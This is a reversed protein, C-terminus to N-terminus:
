MADEQRVEPECMEDSTQQLYKILDAIHAKVASIDALSGDHAEAERLAQLTLPGPHLKVGQYCTFPIIKDIHYKVAMDSCIMAASAGELEHLEDRPVSTLTAALYASSRRM